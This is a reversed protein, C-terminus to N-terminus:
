RYDGAGHIKGNQERDFLKKLNRKAIEPITINLETACASLYWYVDGLEDILEERKKNTLINDDDRQIKKVKNAFEGAEGILGLTPYILNGKKNIDPYNPPYDAYKHANQQYFYHSIYLHSGTEYFFKKLKEPFINTFKKM